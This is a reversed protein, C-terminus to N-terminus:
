CSLHQSYDSGTPYIVVPVRRLKPYGVFVAWRRLDKSRLHCGNSSISPLSLRTLLRGYEPHSSDCSHEVILADLRKRM